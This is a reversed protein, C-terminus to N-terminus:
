MLRVPLARVSQGTAHFVANAIAPAIAIIPTEGAGASPLDPRGVLQIDLDPVDDFRPVRYKGFSANLIRGDAFQIEERLAAGLGMLIAGQIQFRLNEPNLVAGCEFAECVRRVKITKQAHDIEVEACAAVCSGKETGCALGFGTNGDARKVNKRWNFAEAAKVLVARLRENELHTLRFDLPDTGALVALEDMFVERAFNNATSALARYSGHRLPPKSRVFRCHAKEIAYPTDVANPGSNINIFHWSAIRGRSDLSAEAEIAAAPRFYAWTFEEERTWRLSVPKGAGQALRAAEVACEATHKGGFAAGFDPIAVRVRDESVHFAQALERRSGFPNQSGTWITLHNESWEAVAARPELPSHQIYPVDYNRRLVKTGAIEEAFPNELGEEAHQRLYDFLETSSPQQQPASWKATKAIAALANEATSTNPAAVGVFQDDRVVAVGHMARAPALDIDTLTAGYAPPRLIKGYLMGPRVIDSPYQHAGTVIDRANPRPAPKGLVKWDAVSTLEVDSPIAQAFLKPADDSKALDAYTLSRKGDIETVKGNLMQVEARRTQWQHSAFTILLERAAAAGQRVSPVTGPSTRSGATMGDNPVAGTDALVMQIRSVPVRLEEAAAQSLETRAGQGGEVKGAFVTISGKAGLHIRAGLTRAGSGFFDGRGRSGSEQGLAPLSVAILLGAGLTKVFSRRSLGFDYGAREFLAEYDLQDDDPHPSGLTNKARQVKSSAAKRLAATHPPLPAGAAASEFTAARQPHDEVRGREPPQERQLSPKM